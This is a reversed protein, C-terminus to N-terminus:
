NNIINLYQLFVAEESFLKLHNNLEKNAIPNFIALKIANAFNVPNCKDFEVLFGLEGNNLIEKPGSKCDCSVVQLGYILAEILVSPLGEYLSSLVLIDNNNFHKTIDNSFGHWHVLNIIDLKEVLENLENYYGEDTVNGVINFEINLGQNHLINISEIIIEIRKVRNIRGLFLISKKDSNNEKVRYIFNNVSFVPNYIVEIRKKNLKYFHILDDKVGESVAIVKDAFRLILKGLISLIKSKINNIKESSPNSAERVYVKIKNQLIFKSIILLLSPGLTTTILVDVKNKKIYKILKFLSRSSRKTNLDIVKVQKDVRTSLPGIYNIVFLFTQIGNKAFLNATKIIINQAGGNNFNFLLFGARM